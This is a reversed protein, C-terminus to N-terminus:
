CGAPAARCGRREGRPARDAPQPQRRRRLSGVGPRHRQIAGLRLVTAVLLQNVAPNVQTFVGGRGTLMLDPEPRLTIREDGWVRRWKRGHFVVGRVLPPDGCGHALWESIRPADTM